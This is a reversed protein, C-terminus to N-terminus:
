IGPILTDIFIQAFVRYPLKYELLRDPLLHITSHMYEREEILNQRSIALSLTVEHKGGVKATSGRRRLQQAASLGGEGSVMLFWAIRVSLDSM